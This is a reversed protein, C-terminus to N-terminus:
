KSANANKGRKKTRWKKHNIYKCIKCHRAPTKSQVGNQTYAKPATYTNKESYPHGNRCHTKSTQRIYNTIGVRGRRVNEKHTVAELHSPNVCGRNSCLHDIELGKPVPGNVQEYIVRHCRKAGFTAYGDKNHAGSWLWCGVEKKLIKSEFNKVNM